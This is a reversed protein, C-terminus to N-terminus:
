AREVDAIARRWWWSWRAGGRRPVGLEQSVTVEVLIV